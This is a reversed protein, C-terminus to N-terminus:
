ERIFHPIEGPVEFSIEIFGAFQGNRYWPSQYFFRKEGKEISFYVNMSPKELMGALKTRDPEPHCDLVDSGLLDRGGDSCFVKEASRNMELLVGDSDCVTIECPCEKVWAATKYRM